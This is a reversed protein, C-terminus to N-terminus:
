HSYPVLPASFLTRQREPGPVYPASKPVKGSKALADIHGARWCAGHHNDSVEEGYHISAGSNVMPRCPAEVGPLQQPVLRGYGDAPLGMARLVPVSADDAAEEPTYWRARTWPQGTMTMFSAEIERMKTRGYLLYNLVGQMFSQGVVMPQLDAPIQALAQARTVMYHAAIVDVLDMTFGAFCDTNLANMNNLFTMPATSALTVGQSIPDRADIIMKRLSDFNTKATMCAATNPQLKLRAVFVDAIDGVFPFGRLEVDDLFGVTDAWDIWQEMLGRVMPNDTQEFGFPESGSPAVYYRDFTQSVAPLVHLALAHRLEHMVLGMVQEDPANLDLLKLTVMVVLGVKGDKSLVFGNALDQTNLVLHVRHNELDGVEFVSQYAEWGQDLLMQMRAFRPDSAPAPPRTQATPTSAYWAQAEEQTAFTTFCDIDPAACSTVADCTGNGYKPDDCREEEDGGGCAAVVLCALAWRFKGM